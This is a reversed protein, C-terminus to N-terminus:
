IAWHCCVIRGDLEFAGTDPSAGYYYLFTGRINEGTVIVTSGDRSLSVDAGPAIEKVKALLKEM